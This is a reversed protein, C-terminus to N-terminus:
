QIIKVEVRRNFKRTFYKNSFIPQEGGFAKIIILGENIGREVLFRKVEEVRKESLALNLDPNGVNDTHGSLEVSSAPNASLFKVLSNLARKAEETLNFDGQPFQVMDLAVLDEEIKVEMAIFSRDAPFGDTAGNGTKFVKSYPNLVLGCEGPLNSTVVYGPKNNKKLLIVGGGGGGGPGFSSVLANESISGGTGGLTEVYLSDEFEEVDLYVTGGAGGGGAGDGLARAQRTQSNGNAKIAHAKGAILGAQILVIGGGNAGPTGAGDNSDGCGGGGGMFIKNKVFPIAKGGAGGNGFIECLAIEDGGKGGASFNAGGGGGANHKNGGGGGNALAGKGAMMAAPLEAIGEGKMAGGETWLSDPNELPYYFSPSNFNCFGDPNNSINGGSFGKGSVDIDAELFLTEEVHFALVGGTEGNWPKATLKETIICNRYEPVKVVQVKGEPEYTNKLKGDIIIISGVIGKIRIYEYNGASKLDKITGFAETDSTDTLAGKMQILLLKDGNSFLAPDAVDLLSAYYNENVSLVKSYSNIVGGIRNTQSFVPFSFFFLLLFMLDSKRRM